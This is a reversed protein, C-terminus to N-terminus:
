RTKISFDYNRIVANSNSASIRTRIGTVNDRDTVDHLMSVAYSGSLSVTRSWVVVWSGGVKLEVYFTASYSSSNVSQVYMNFQGLNVSDFSCEWTSSYTHSAYTTLDGDFANGSGSVATFGRSASEKYDFLLGNIVCNTDVFALGSEHLTKRIKTTDLVVANIGVNGSVIDGEFDTHYTGMAASGQVSIRKQVVIDNHSNLLYKILTITNTTSMTTRSDCGRAYSDLDEEMADWQPNFPLSSMMQGKSVQVFVENAEFTDKDPNYIRFDEFERGLFSDSSYRQIEGVKRGWLDLYLVNNSDNRVNISDLPLTAEVESYNKLDVFWNDTKETNKLTFM